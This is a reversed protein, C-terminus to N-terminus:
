ATVEWFVLQQDILTFRSIALPTHERPYWCWGNLRDRSFLLAGHPLDPQVHWFNPVFKAWERRDVSSPRPLGRHDHLHVHFIGVENSLALQFASRLAASSFRAGVMPDYEYHEDAVPHYGHALILLGQESAGFRCSVFGVREAAHAHPRQLDERIVRVLNGLAKFHIHMNM